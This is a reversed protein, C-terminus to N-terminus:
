DGGTHRAAISDDRYQEFRRDEEIAAADQEDYLPQTPDPLVAAALARLAAAPSDGYGSNSDRSRSSRHWPGFADATWENFQMPAVGRSVGAVVWGKPLAAEAEHWAVDLGPEERERVVREWTALEYSLDAADEGNAYQLSKRILEV